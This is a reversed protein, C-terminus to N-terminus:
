EDWPNPDAKETTHTIPSVTMREPETVIQPTPVGADRFAKLVKTVDSQFFAARRNAM